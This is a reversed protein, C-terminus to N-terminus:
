KEWTTKWDCAVLADYLGCRYRESWLFWNRAVAPNNIAVTEFLGMLLLYDSKACVTPPM